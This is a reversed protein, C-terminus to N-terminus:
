LQGARQPTYFEYRRQQLDVPKGGDITLRLSKVRGEEQFVRFACARQAAEDAGFYPPDSFNDCTASIGLIWVATGQRVTCPPGFGYAVLVKGQRGLTFCGQGNGLFPNEAAPLTYDRYWGEAQAEPGTVGDIKTVAPLLEGTNALDQASVVPASCLAVTIGSAA